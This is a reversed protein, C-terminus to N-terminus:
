DLAWRVGMVFLASFMGALLTVMLETKLIYHTFIMIILAGTLAGLPYNRAKSFIGEISSYITNKDTMKRGPRLKHEDVSSKVGM